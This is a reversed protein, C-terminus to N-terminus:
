ARWSGPPSRFPTWGGYNSGPSGLSVGNLRVDTVGDDAALLGFLTM